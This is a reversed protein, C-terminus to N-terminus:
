KRIEEPLFAGTGKIKYLGERKEYKISEGFDALKWGIGKIFM